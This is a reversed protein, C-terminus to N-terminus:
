MRPVAFIYGATLIRPQQGEYGPLNKQPDEVLRGAILVQDGPQCLDRPDAPAAIHLEVPGSKGATQITLSFLSGAQAQSKVTGAALLGYGDPLDPWRDATLVELGTFMAPKQALQKLLLDFRDISEALEEDGPRRYSLLRGVESAAGHLDALAESRADASTPSTEEYRKLASDTAFLAENIEAASILSRQRQPQANAAPWDDPLLPTLDPMPVSSPQESREPPSAATVHRAQDVRETQRPREKSKEPAPPEVEKLTPSEIAPTLSPASTPEELAPLTQLEEPPTKAATADEAPKRPRRRGSTQGDDRSITISPPPESEPVAAKGRFQAPVIWPFYAAITPGVDLPDRGILWWLVLLGLALGMVGGGVYSVLLALGSKEKRRPRLATRPLARPAPTVPEVLAAPAPGALQYEHADASVALAAQEVEGGIILLPPPANALAEALLYEELCLPCRVLARSGAKPPVSVEDRCRPCRVISM